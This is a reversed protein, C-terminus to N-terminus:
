ANLRAFFDDPSCVLSRHCYACSVRKPIQASTTGYGDGVPHWTESLISEITFGEERVDHGQPCLIPTKEAGGRRQTSEELQQM